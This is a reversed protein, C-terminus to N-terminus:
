VEDKYNAMEKLVFKVLFRILAMLLVIAFPLFLPVPKELEACKIYVFCMSGIVVIELVIYHVWTAIFDTKDELLKLIHDPFVVLAGLILLLYYQPPVGRGYLLMFRDKKFYFDIQM